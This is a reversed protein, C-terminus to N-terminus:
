SSRSPLGAFKLGAGVYGQRKLSTLNRSGHKGEAHEQLRQLRRSRKRHIAAHACPNNSYLLNGFCVCIFLHSFVVRAEQCGHVGLKELQRVRQSSTARLDGEEPCSRSNSRKVQVLASM